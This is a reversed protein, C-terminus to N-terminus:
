DDKETKTEIKVAKKKTTTKKPEDTSWGASIMKPAKDEHVEIIDNGNYLKIRKM